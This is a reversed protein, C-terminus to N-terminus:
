RYDLFEVSYTQNISVSIRLADPVSARRRRRRTEDEVVEVVDLCNAYDINCEESAKKSTM